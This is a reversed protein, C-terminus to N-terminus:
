LVLRPRTRCSTCATTKLVTLVCVVRVSVCSTHPKCTRCQGFRWRWDATAQRDHRRALPPLCVQCEVFVVLVVVQQSSGAALTASGPCSLLVRGRHHRRSSLSLSLLFFGNKTADVSMFMSAIPLAWLHVALRNRAPASLSILRNPTTNDHYSKEKCRRGCPVMSGRAAVALDDPRGPPRRSSGRGGGPAGPSPSMSTESLQQKGCNSIGSGGAEKWPNAERRPLRWGAGAEM